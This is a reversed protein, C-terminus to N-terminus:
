DVGLKSKTCMCTCCCVYWGCWVTIHGCMCFVCGVYLRTEVCVCVCVCVCACVRMCVYQKNCMCVCMQGSTEQCFLPHLLCRHPLPSYLGHGGGGGGVGRQAWYLPLLQRRLPGHSSQRLVNCSLPQFTLGCGSSLCASMPLVCHPYLVCVFCCM